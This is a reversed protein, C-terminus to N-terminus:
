DFFKLTGQYFKTMKKMHTNTNRVLTIRLYVNNNVYISMTKRKDKM